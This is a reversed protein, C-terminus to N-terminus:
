LVTFVNTMFNNSRRRLTKIVNEFRKQYRKKLSADRHKKLFKQDFVRHFDMWGTRLYDPTPRVSLCQM